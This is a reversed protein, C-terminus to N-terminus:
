SKWSTHYVYGIVHVSCSIVKKMVKNLQVWIVECDDPFIWGDYSARYLRNLFPAFQHACNKPLFVTVEHRWSSQQNLKFLKVSNKFKLEPMKYPVRTIFSLSINAPTNLMSSSDFFKALLLFIASKVSIIFFIKLLLGSCNKVLPIPFFSTMWVIKFCHKTEFVKSILLNSAHLM